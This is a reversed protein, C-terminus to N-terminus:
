RTWFPSILFSVMTKNVARTTIFADEVVAWTTDVKILIVRIAEAVKIAEAEAGIDEVAEEEVAVVAVALNTIEALAEKARIYPM